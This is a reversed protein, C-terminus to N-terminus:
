AAGPDTNRILQIYFAIGHAYDEISIRENTGHALALDEPGARFPSFRYVNRTLGTFHKSDTGGLALTPVIIAEPFIQRITRSLLWFGDSETEAVPSPDRAIQPQYVSIQVRDDDVTRRVHEKVAQMTDGPLIRFNVVARAIIPLVNDKPSGEFMTAATTTRVVANGNSSRALMREAIPAFLWLNAVAVRPAFSMAPGLAELSRRAVGRLSLPMQNRELRYVAAALIGVASQAPPRSSHGGRAVVSLELSLYGKEAISISAVPRHVGPIVGPLLVVGEDIVLEPEVNRSALREAIKKAGRLGVVEEDHGFALHVTRRPTFGTGILHEVAECLALVDSKDDMTGRGWVFGDAIEGSFPPHAWDGETGAQVPVVDLHAMLVVPRLGPDRGQWTYLLSHDNVAERVLTRHMRPFAAALYAHLRDFEAYDFRDPDHYSITRFRIAGALREAAAQRHITAPRVPEVEIQDLTFTATRILLVALLLGLAALLGILLRSM